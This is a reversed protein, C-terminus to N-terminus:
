PKNFYTCLKDEDSEWILVPATDAAMRFRQESDRFGPELTKLGEQVRQNTARITLIAFLESRMTLHIFSIEVPFERADGRLAFTELAHMAPTDPEAFFNELHQRCRQQLGLPVLSEVTKGMLQERSFAFLKESQPSAAVLAGQQTVVLLADPSASLVAHCNVDAWTPVLGRNRSRTGM